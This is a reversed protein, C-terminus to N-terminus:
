ADCELLGAVACWVRIQEKAAQVNAEARTLADRMDTAANLADQYDCDNALVIETQQKRETENKGAIEGAGTAERITEARQAAVVAEQAAVGIKLQAAERVWREHERGHEVLSRICDNVTVFRREPAKVVSAIMAMRGEDVHLEAPGKTSTANGGEIIVGAQWEKLQVEAPGAVTHLEVEIGHRNM